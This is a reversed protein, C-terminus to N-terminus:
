RDGRSGVTGTRTRRAQGCRQAAGAGDAPGVAASASLTPSLEGRGPRAERPLTAQDAAFGPPVDSSSMSMSLSVVQRWSPGSRREWPPARAGAGRCARTRRAWRHSDHDRRLAPRADTVGDARHEGALRDVDLEHHDVLARVVEGRRGDTIEDVVVAQQDNARVGGTDATPAVDSQPQRGVVDDQDGIVVDRHGDVPGPPEVSLHEPHLLDRHREAADLGPGVIGVEPEDGLVLDVLAEDHARQERLRAGTPDAGPHGDAAAVDQRDAPEVLLEPRTAAQATALVAVEGRSRQGGAPPHQLDGVGEDDVVAEARPM